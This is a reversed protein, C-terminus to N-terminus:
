KISMKFIQNGRSGLVLHNGIVAPSSEFNTGIHATHIIEGSQGDIIYANGYTDGTFVFMEGKENLFSVPSSWAYHKLKTSFIQKGTAKDIAIFEGNQGSLNRVVNAFIRDSCNGEGLLPTGYFGGDFHKSGVLAKKAPLTFHWIEEGTLADLKAFHATGEGVQRDVECSCYLYPKGNEIELVPSADNDDKNDYFWVPKMTELNVCIVVGHNDALYGYNAYVPMSTEVGGASDGKKRFRLTSHMKEIGNDVYFKYLTGNEGPRFVFHGVRVPSSDYAAWSRWAKPDRPYTHEISHSKLNITLAGFPEHSPVGHGVYLNGNMKPDLMMTGKIPNTVDIAPRSSKGTNYDIFYVRGCLSGIMIEEQAYNEFQKTCSDPWNIYLPQGTWGSGGGWEGRCDTNFVWDVVITDPRGTVKGNFRAQRYPGGRFTLIGPADAYCDKLDGLEGPIEPALVEIKYEIKDVSPLSSDPLAVIKVEPEIIETSDITDTEIGGKHGFSGFDCSTMVILPLAWLLHKKSM